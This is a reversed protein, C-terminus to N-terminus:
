RWTIQEGYPTTEPVKVWSRKPKRGANATRSALVVYDTGCWPSEGHCGDFLSTCRRAKAEIPCRELACAAYCNQLVSLFRVRDRRSQLGHRSWRARGLFCPECAGTMAVTTSCRRSGDVHTRVTLSEPLVQVWWGSTRLTPDQDMLLRLRFVLADHVPISGTNGAQSAPTRPRQVFM